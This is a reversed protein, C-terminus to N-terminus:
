KLRFSIPITQKVRVPVGNKKGPKYVLTNVVRIAEDKLSQDLESVHKIIEANSVTGDINIIFTVFLKGSFKNQKAIEPYRINEQIYNLLGIQGGPFEPMEEVVFYFENEKENKKEELDNIKLEELNPLVYNIAKTSGKLSFKIDNQGLNNSVRVNLSSSKKLKEIIEYKSFLQDKDRYSFDGLFINERDSSHGIDVCKFILGSEDSFSFYVKTNTNPPYYGADVIYLNITKDQEFYNIYLKPTNYPYDDGSGVISAVKYNGDFDNGGSSYNWVQGFGIM